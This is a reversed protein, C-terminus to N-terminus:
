FKKHKRQKQRMSYSSYGQKFKKLNQPGWKSCTGLFEDVILIENGSEPKIIEEDSWNKM